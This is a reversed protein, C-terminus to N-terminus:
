LDEKFNCMAGKFKDTQTFISQTDKLNHNTIFYNQIGHVGSLREVGAAMLQHIVGAAILNTQKKNWSMLM